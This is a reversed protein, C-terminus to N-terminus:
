VLGLGDFAPVSCRALRIAYKEASTPIRTESGNVLVSNEKNM